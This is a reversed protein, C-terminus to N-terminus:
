PLLYLCKCSQAMTAKPKTIIKDHISTPIDRAEHNTYTFSSIRSNLTELTFYKEVGIFNRLMLSMEYPVVREFLIHMIDQPLNDVVSFEHIESLPSRSNVGYTISDERALAGDLLM